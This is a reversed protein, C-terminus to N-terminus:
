KKSKIAVILSASTFGLLTFGIVILARRPKNKDEPVRVPELITFVPTEEKVKIRAQERQSALGKYVEFAINLENQLREYETQILSNTINRNRDTFKAVLEQKREYESQADALREEIFDLNVQVKEVKYSAIKQTLKNVLLSAVQASAVPDPMETTVSIIGTKSDVSVSLRDSFKELVKWDEKSFRLLGHADVVADGSSSLLGKIKGPLGFTYEGILGLLSPKDFDKFYEFSTITIDRNEFYVPSNLLGELFPTSKVIEPYLEPTLSGAGSLNLNIGALGALGGLGGLDPSGAEQSEPMLKCSAAFEVKSTFAITLGLVLFVSTTKVIFLRKGWIDKALQILDIEDELINEKGSM